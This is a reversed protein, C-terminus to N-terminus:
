RASTLATDRRLITMLNLLGFQSWNTKWKLRGGNTLNVQFVMLALALHAIKAHIVIVRVIQTGACKKEMNM